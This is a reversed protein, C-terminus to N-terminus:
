IAKENLKKNAQSLYNIDTTNLFTCIEYIVICPM